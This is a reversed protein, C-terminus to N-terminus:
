QWRGHRSLLDDEMEPPRENARLIHTVNPANQRTIELLETKQDDSEFARSPITLNNSNRDFLLMVGFDGERVESLRSWWYRIPSSKEQAMAHFLLGQDDTVVTVPISESLFGLQRSLWILIRNRYWIEVALAMWLGALWWTTDIVAFGALVLCLAAIVRRVWPLRLWDTSFDTPKVEYELTIHKGSM